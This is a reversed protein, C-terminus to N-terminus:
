AAAVEEEFYRNLYAQVRRLAEVSRQIRSRFREAAVYDRKNFMTDFAELVIAKNRETSSNSM